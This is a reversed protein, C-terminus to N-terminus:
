DFASVPPRKSAWPRASELQAALRFLIGEDGLRATFMAGLPLNAATWFLPVSMSPAGTANALPSWPIFDFVNSAMSEVVGPLRLISDIKSRAIVTEAIKQAGTSRLAGHLPPPSATTPTLLIDHRRHFAAMTRGLMRLDTLATALQEAGLARGYMGVLETTVELDGARRKRGRLKEVSLIEAATAAGIVTLLAQAFHEADISPAAEVVEHGLSECLKAADQVAAIAEPQVKSPLFPTATWAIRLKGPPRGVEEIFPRERPPAAYPAGDEPACVADLLAASDRVSRSIAHEQALGFWLEGADPGTPTRGRSPKIGFIGCCSAPIRISGGGDGGNAMPVVGAAVLAASGGSSGGSTRGPDWPTGTPGYAEPETFPTLGLEPSSSRAVFVLGAARYRKVMESDHDCVHDKLFRSGRTMPTGAADSLLDKLVFPVGGFAGSPNTRAQARAHEDLRHVVAHLQPDVKQIRALAEEALELATVEKKRVLDALSVADHRAYDRIPM